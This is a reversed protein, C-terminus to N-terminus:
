LGQISSYHVFVDDGAERELFGYGKANNFWKVTGRLQRMTGEKWYIHPYSGAESAPHAEWRNFSAKGTGEYTDLAATTIQRHCGCTGASLILSKVNPWSNTLAIAPGCEEMSLSHCLILLDTHETGSMLRLSDLNLRESGSLRSRGSGM